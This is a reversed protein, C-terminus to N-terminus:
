AIPRGTRRTTMQPMQDVTAGACNKGDGTTLEELREDVGPDTRREEGVHQRAEGPQRDADESDIATPM